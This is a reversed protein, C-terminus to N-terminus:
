QRLHTPWLRQRLLKVKRALNVNVHSVRNAHNVRSAVSAHSVRNVRRHRKWRTAQKLRSIPLCMAMTQMTTKVVVKAVASGAVIAVVVATAAKM